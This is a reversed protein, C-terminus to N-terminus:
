GNLLQSSKALTSDVLTRDINQLSLPTPLNQLGASSRADERRSDNPSEELQLKTDLLRVRDSLAGLGMQWNPGHPLIIFFVAM